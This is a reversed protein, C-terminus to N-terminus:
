TVLFCTETTLSGGGEAGGQQRGGARGAAAAATAAAAKVHAVTRMGMEKGVPEIISHWALWGGESGGRGDSSGFRTCSASPAVPGDDPVEAVSASARSLM